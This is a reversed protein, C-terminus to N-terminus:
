LYKIKDFNFLMQFNEELQENKHKLRSIEKNALNLKRQLTTIKEKSARDKDSVNGIEVDETYDSNYGQGSQVDANGRCRCINMM